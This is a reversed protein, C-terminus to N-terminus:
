GAVRGEIFAAHVPHDELAVPDPLGHRQLLERFPGTIFAQYVDRSPCTDIVSIGDTTRLCLHLRMNATPIDALLADYRRLLDDPDGAFRWISAHMVAGARLAHPYLAAQVWAGPPVPLRAHGDDRLSGRHRHHVPPRRAHSRRPHDARLGRRRARLRPHCPRPHTHHHRPRTRGHGALRDRGTRHVHRTRRGGRRGRARPVLVERALYQYWGPRDVLQPLWPGTDLRYIGSLFQSWEEATAATVREVSLERDSSGPPDGQLPTGDRVIRDQRDFRTLGRDQLWQDYQAPQCHPLSQLLFMDIGAQEWGAIIEDIAEPTAPQTVGLGITRSFYRRGTAAWSLVLAGAVERTGVGAQQAFDAPAAAYLDAWARAEASEIASATALDVSITEIGTTPTVSM